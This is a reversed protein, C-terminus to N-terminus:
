YRSKLSNAALIGYTIGSIAAWPFGIWVGFHATIVFGNFLSLAILGVLWMIALM